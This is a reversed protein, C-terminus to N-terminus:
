ITTIGAAELERKTKVDSQYKKKCSESRCVNRWAKRGVAKTTFGNACYFCVKLKNKEVAKEPKAPETVPSLLEAVPARKKEDFWKVVAEGHITGSLHVDEFQQFSDFMTVSNTNSWFVVTKGGKFVVGHMVYGEGSIRKQDKSRFVAFTRPWWNPLDKEDKIADHKVNDHRSAPLAKVTVLKADQKARLAKDADSKANARYDAREIEKRGHKSITFTLIGAAGGDSEDVFKNERLRKLIAWGVKYNTSEGNPGVLWIAKSIISNGITYGEYILRLVSHDDFIILRNPNKSDVGAKGREILKQAWIPHTTPQTYSM